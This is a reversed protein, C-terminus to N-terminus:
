SALDRNVQKRGKARLYNLLAPIAYTYINYPLKKPAFDWAGLTRVVEGNFGEKFRYVGWMSDGPEFVDPAGWLDYRTCELQKALKIAEWQLLHNPMREREEQKSMGYLYWSKQHHHFLFLAAIPKGEYEAILIYLMGAQSFSEWVDTYYQLNRIAFGDRLSTEAYMKYLHEYDEHSGRRIHVEKREALRINYRTKQKFGALIDDLPRDLDLWVTNRFQIQDRSFVWHRAQLAELAQRGTQEETANDSLPVGRGVVLEPDMKMFVARHKRTLVELDDLVSSVLQKNSWDLLPGRPVYFISYGTNFQKFSLPKKLILAAAVTVGQDDQWTKPIVSWGYRSKLEGWQWTQLLHAGPL